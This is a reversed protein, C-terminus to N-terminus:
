AQGPDLQAQAKLGWRAVELVEALPIPAPGGTRCAALFAAVGARHGKDQSWGGQRSFGRWGWGRLVRFNDLQLVREGVFVELREKPYARHGHALYHVTGTSGDEFALVLTFSGGRGGDAVPHVTIRQLPAGALFRLLDIFHCGEGLLRGGGVARDLLWHDPPLAGANVTMVMTRPEPVGRLLEVMRRVHPAFRRNFGIGLLPPAAVDALAAEVIAIGAADIALPKEVFVAKGARLAEAVLRAHTNHRTAIVVVDVDPAELVQREDSTVRAFGHRRGALAGTLGAASAVVTLEAGAAQFAPILIQSAFQGAGLFGLRVAGDRAPSRAPGAVPIVRELAAVPGPDRRPYTLVLGLATGPSLLRTYAMSAEAFAVRESILPRVDLRRDALLGLVAEFNRQETWRVHGLPYDHGGQEYALDYRGPGYSCSVQFTLEKEYFDARQLVLGTVGVLVIRGRKRCMRAAQHVPESSATSATLLAGDIGRGGTLAQVAAVPDAVEALNVPTAGWAAALALRAPDFDLGVVHCGHARLLQVTLLGILGLGFVAFTEGLTPSALRLGQLGIAALVTFAAEEDALEAEGVPVRACLNAPVCVVEAHPGNSVVRDGLALGKVGAGVELVVGASSYGLPVAQALKADVARLTPLVGDTRMKALVQRVREPQSRVKELWGARGFSVLMRETGASIVSARSAVLVHGPRVRPVPVEILEPAPRNLGQIVQKV